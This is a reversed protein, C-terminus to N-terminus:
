KLPEYFGNPLKQFLHRRDPSVYTKQGNTLPEQLRKFIVSDREYNIFVRWAYASGVIYELVWEQPSWGPKPSDNIRKFNHYSIELQEGPKVRNQLDLALDRYTMDDGDKWRM